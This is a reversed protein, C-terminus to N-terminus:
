FKNKNYSASGDETKLSEKIKDVMDDEAEIIFSSIYHCKKCHYVDGLIGGVEIYLDTGGCKPCIYRM